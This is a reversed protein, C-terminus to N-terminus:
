ELTYTLRLQTLRGIRPAGVFERHENKLANQVMVDMRLGPVRDSFDQGFGLDLLFYPDVRGTLLGARVPFGKNYRGSANVSFGGPLRYEGGLKFKFSPANLALQFDTNTEGLDSADFFDDSVVSLNAFLSYDDHAFFELAADIGWYQVQGYNIYSALIPVANPDENVLVEQDPQIVGLPFENLSTGVLAALIEASQGPTLGSAQASGLLFQLTPDASSAFLTNLAATLDRSLGTGNLYVFPSSLAIPAVFNKKQNYYIDILFLANDAFLGKYGVEFTRTTTQELPRVDIPSSLPIVGGESFNPVGIFASGTTSPGLSGALATYGLLDALVNRQEASLPLGQLPEASRLRDILGTAAAVGYFPALPIASLSIDEGFLGDVPLVLRAAQQQRFRDFTYSGSGQMQIVINRTDDLPFYFPIDLFFQYSTPAAFATNFSLRLTQQPALKFVTAIRPSIQIDQYVNSWDARLAVTLDVAESLRHATQAYGGLLRIADNEEFRGNLTGETELSFAEGDLGFTFRSREDRSNFQYQIQAGFRGGDQEIPLPTSYAYSDGDNRVNAYIQAFLDGAQLRLQGFLDKMNKVQFQALDSLLFGNLESYGINATLSVPQSLRYKVMGTVGFKSYDTEREVVERELQLLDLPDEPRYPWEQAQAYMATLKYGWRNDIVGAHRYQAGLSSREGGQVALTTGPYAFPDKTIIHLVGEDGGAGYLASAPGRVVEMHDLDIQTATMISYYALGEPGITPRYDNLVYINSINPTNFGRFAIQTHDFSTQAVDVGIANRLAAITSPAVDQQIGKADILSVSAPADLAKESTRSATVVVSGLSIPEETLTANITRLENASLDLDITFGIYAIYNVELTYAGPEIDDVQFRGDVDAVTSKLTTGARTNLFISAGYLPTRTAADTVLGVLTAREQAQGTYVVAQLTVLLCVSAYLVKM